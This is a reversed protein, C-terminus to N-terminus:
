VEKKCFRRIREKEGDWDGYSLITVYDAVQKPHYDLEYIESITDDNPDGDGKWKGNVDRFGILERSRRISIRTSMEGTYIRVCEGRGRTVVKKFPIGEGKLFALVKARFSQTGSKSM